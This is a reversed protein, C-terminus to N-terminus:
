PGQQGVDLIIRSRRRSPPGYSDVKIRSAALLRDMATHLAKKTLGQASPHSAFVAPAFSASPSPSVERGEREFQAVLDLFISDAKADAALKDFGGAPGDLTFRGAQWRLGIETGARAYNAKKLRLVRLDPDPEQGDSDKRRELYLRSRVSNSWATSGSTGSGSNLGTLSPHALLLVTLDFDIALSRLMGIFQRAEPRSNENAAYIDALNDLILLRPRLRAVLRALADWLPTEGILGARKSPAALVADKGALTLIHLDGLAALDFGQGAAIDVLRRHVEDIDDEAAVYLAPGFEPVTGIWDKGAAVAAGLQLAVLSKGTDGDGSLMTVARDPIIDPVLWRRYPATQGAFSAAVITELEPAAIAEGYDESGSPPPEGAGNSHGNLKARSEERIRRTEAAFYANREDLPWAAFGEPYSM